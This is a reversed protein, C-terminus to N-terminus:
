EHNEGKTSDDGNLQELPEFSACGLIAIFNDYIVQDIWQRYGGNTNPNAFCWHDGTAGKAHKCHRCRKHHATMTM